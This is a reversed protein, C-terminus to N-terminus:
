NNKRVREVVRAYAALAQDIEANTTAWGTSFRLACKADDESYGMATLVGSPKFSGSSCASGSSLAVGEIDMAMLQTEATVGPLLISTTSFVRSAREGVVVLDGVINKLGSELKYQLDKMRGQLVPLDTAARESAVGFGAIAAVNETGARQRKEQGGGHLLKPTQLGERFILAGVGQPGGFKHASLTLTDVNLSKFDVAVRGAAQVADCHVLVGKQRALSALEAVPQVVGTESNVLQICVLAPSEDVLMKEFIERDVVGDKTVPIKKAHFAAQLVSPHETACVLVPKDRYGSLITNNGETAGSNFIVQAPRVHVLAAVRARADEILKRAERGFGHVSSANGPSRMAETVAVIVEPFVPTTANYDLYIKTM